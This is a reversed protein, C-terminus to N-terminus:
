CSGARVELIGIRAVRVELVADARQDAPVRDRHHQLGVALRGLEAPVDRAELRGRREVLDAEVVEPVRGGLGVASVEDVELAVGGGAEVRAGEEFAPEGLLLHAVEALLDAALAQGGVRVRPQHRAEPLEGRDRHAEARQHGDVLRPEHLVQLAAAQAVGGQALHPREHAVALHVLGLRQARDRHGAALAEVVEDEDDVAVQLAEVAGHAAVALDDLLELCVEAAVAPVHDLHYPARAPIRQQRGVAVAVQHAPEVLRDVALVLGVLRAVAGVHALVEEVRRLQALHDRVHGVVLHPREVAAAMVRHLDM